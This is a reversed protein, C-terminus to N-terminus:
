ATVAIPFTPTRRRVGQGLDVTAEVAWRGPPVSYGLRPAVSATGVLLPVEVTEGPVARFQVLPLIQPGAFGGVIEETEPDVVWATLQGNTRMAIEGPGCNAFQLHTRCTHGSRVEIEEVLTITLTRPDFRPPKERTAQACGAPLSRDPFHLAGVTLDVDEGFRARLEAADDVAWAALSISFPPNRGADVRPDPYGQLPRCEDQALRALVIKLEDWTSM